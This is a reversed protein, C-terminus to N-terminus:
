RSHADCCPPWPRCLSPKQCPSSTRCSTWGRCLRSKKSCHHRCCLDSRFLDSLMLGSHRCSPCSRSSLSSSPYPPSRWVNRCLFASYSSAMTAGADRRSYRPCSARANTTVVAPVSASTIRPLACRYPASLGLASIKQKSESPTISAPATAKGHSRPVSNWANRKLSNKGCAPSAPMRFM